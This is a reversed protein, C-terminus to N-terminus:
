APILSPPLHPPSPPPRIFVSSFKAHHIMCGKGDLVSKSKAVAYVCDVFKVVNRIQLKELLVAMHEEQRVRSDHQSFNESAGFKNTETRLVKAILLPTKKGSAREVMFVGECGGGALDLQKVVKYLIHGTRKDELIREAIKFDPLAEDSPKSLKPPM